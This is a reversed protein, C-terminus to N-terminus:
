TSASTMLGAMITRLNRVKSLTMPRLSALGLGSLKGSSRMIQQTQSSFQHRASVFQGHSIQRIIYLKNERELKIGECLHCCGESGQDSSRGM